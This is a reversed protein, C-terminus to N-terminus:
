PSMARGFRWCTTQPLWTEFELERVQEQAEFGGVWGLLPASSVCPGSRVTTWVGGDEPLKLGAAWIRYRYWGSEPATTAPIRGYFIVNGNWVVARGDLMEPERTRRQPDRRAVESASLDRDYRDADAPALARRFAEDLAVDVVALHRELQFHSMAQGNAVTTFERSRDEEPLQDALPIDIGLLDHLSREIERRTLRRGRVRGLKEDQSRQFAAIWDGTSRVFADGVDGPLAEVDRPPMEGAAVRDFVRVWKKALQDDALNVSLTALDLNGEAEKGQHCDYCYKQLVARDPAPEDAWASAAANLAAAILLAILLGCKSRM